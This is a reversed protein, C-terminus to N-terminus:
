FSSFISSNISIFWPKSCLMPTLWAEISVTRRVVNFYLNAELNVPAPPPPQTKVSSGLQIRKTRNIKSIEINESNFIKFVLLENTVCKNNNNNKRERLLYFIFRRLLLLQYRTQEKRQQKEFTFVLFSNGHLGNPLKSIRKKKVEYKLIKSRLGHILTIQFLQQYLSIQARTM